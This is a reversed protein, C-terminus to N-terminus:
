TRAFEGHYRAAAEAYAAAAEEKTDYRGLAIQKRKVFISAQWKRRSADWSVGKIGSQSWSRAGTNWANEAYSALRLNGFRNNKKDGDRHDVLEQPWMGTCLAWVIRHAYSRFRKGCPLKLSVEIYGGANESGAPKGAFRANWVKTQRDHGPLEQWALVGTCPDYKVREAVYSVPINEPM